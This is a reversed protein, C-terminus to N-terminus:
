EAGFAEHLLLYWIALHEAQLSQTKNFRQVYYAHWGLRDKGTPMLSKRVRM